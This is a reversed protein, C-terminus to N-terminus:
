LGYGPPCFHCIFISFLQYNKKSHAPHEKKPSFATAQADKLFDKLYLFQLKLDFFIKEATKKLNNTM